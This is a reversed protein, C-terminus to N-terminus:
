QRAPPDTEVNLVRGTFPDYRMTQTVSSVRKGGQYHEVSATMVGAEADDRATASALRRGGRLVWVKAAPGTEPDGALLYEDGGPKRLVLGGEPTIICELGVRGKLDLLRCVDGPGYEGSRKSDPIGLEVFSNRVIRGGADMYFHPVQSGPTYGPVYLMIHVHPPSDVHGRGCAVEFSLLNITGEFGREDKPGMGGMLRLAERAALLYNLVARTEAEPYPASAFAGDARIRWNHYVGIPWGTGLPDPLTNNILTGASRDAVADFELRDNVETFKVDTHGVIVRAISAGPCTMALRPPPAQTDDSALTFFAERDNEGSWTPGTRERWNGAPSLIQLSPKGTCRAAAAKVAKITLLAPEAAACPVAICIGLLMALPSRKPKMGNGYRQRADATLPARSSLQTTGISETRPEIDDM